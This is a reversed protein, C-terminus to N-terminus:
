MDRGIESAGLRSAGFKVKFVNEAADYVARIADRTNDVDLAPQVRELAERAAIFDAASLGAISSQLSSHFEADVLYHVGGYEGLSYSLNEERFVREVRAVPDDIYSSSMQCFITVIDLFDVLSVRVFDGGLYSFDVGIESSIHRAIEVRPTYAMM